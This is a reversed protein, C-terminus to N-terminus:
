AVMYQCVELGAQNKSQYYILQREGEIAKLFYPNTVAGLEVLDVHHGLTQELSELLGFYMRGHELPDLPKFVVLFDHDGPRANKRAASGFLELRAVQYREALARLTDPTTMPNM